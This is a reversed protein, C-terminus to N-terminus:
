SIQQFFITNYDAYEQIQNMEKPSIHSIDFIDQNKIVKKQSAYFFGVNNLVVKM